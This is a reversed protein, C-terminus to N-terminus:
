SCARIAWRAASATAPSGTVTSM